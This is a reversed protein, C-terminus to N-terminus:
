GRATRRAGWDVVLRSGALRTQWDRALGAGCMVDVHNALLVQFPKSKTVLQGALRDAGLQDGQAVDAGVVGAAPWGALWGDLWGAWGVGGAATTNTIGDTRPLQRGGLIWHRGAAEEPVDGADAGGGPSCDFVHSAQEPGRRRDRCEPACASECIAM